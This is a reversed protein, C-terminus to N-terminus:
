EKALELVDVGDEVLLGLLCVCYNVLDKIRRPLPESVTQPNNPNRAIANMISTFHKNSYVSWVQYKTLRIREGEKKFNGVCDDGEKYDAGKKRLTELCLEFFAKALKEREEITM